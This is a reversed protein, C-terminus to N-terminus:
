NADCIVESYFRIANIYISYYSINQQGNIKILFTRVKIYQNIGKARLVKKQYKDKSEKSQHAIFNRLIQIEKFYTTFEATSFVKNFPCTEEKFIFVKIEQIKKLYDIYQKDCKLFGELHEENEFTIRLEPSFNNKGEGGLSYSIFAKTLFKEFEIFVELLAFHIHKNNQVVEENWEEIKTILDDNNVNM